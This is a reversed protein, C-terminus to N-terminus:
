GFREASADLRKVKELYALARRDLDRPYTYGL